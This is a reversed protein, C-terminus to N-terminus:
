LRGTPILRFGAALFHRDFGFAHTIGRQKMTAFSLADIYSFDHERFRQLVTRADAELAGDAYVVEVRPTASLRDLLAWATSFGLTRRLFTCSEAIV